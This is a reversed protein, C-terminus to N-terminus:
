FSGPRGWGESYAARYMIGAGVAQTGQKRPLTRTTGRELMRIVLGGWTRDAIELARKVDGVVAEVCAWPDTLDARALCQVEFPLGVFIKEGQYTREDDEVIIAIAVEEDDPGLDIEQNLYVHEGADTEYPEGGPSTKDKAIDELLEVAKELIAQRVTVGM